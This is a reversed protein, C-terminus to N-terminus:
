SSEKQSRVICLINLSTTKARHMGHHGGGYGTPFWKDLAKGAAAGRAEPFLALVYKCKRFHRALNPGRSFLSNKGNRLCFECQLRETTHKEEKHRRLNSTSSCQHACIDCSLMKTRLHVNAVHEDRVKAAAFGEACTPCKYPRRGTHGWTHREVSHVFQHPSIGFIGVRCGIWRCFVDNRVGHAAKLHEHM